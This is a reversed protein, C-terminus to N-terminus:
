EPFLFDNVRMANYQGFIMGVFINVGERVFMKGFEKASPKKKEEEKKVETM